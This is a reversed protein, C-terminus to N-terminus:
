WLDSTVVHLTGVSVGALSFRVSWCAGLVIAAPSQAGGRCCAVRRAEAPNPHNNRWRRYM